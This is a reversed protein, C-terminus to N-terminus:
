GSSGRNDAWQTRLTLAAFSAPWRRADRLDPSRPAVAALVSALPLHVPATARTHAGFAAFVPRPRRASLMRRALLVSAQTRAANVEQQGQHWRPRRGTKRVASATARGTLTALPSM